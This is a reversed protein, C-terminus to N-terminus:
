QITFTIHTEGFLGADVRVQFYMDITKTCSDFTGYANDVYAAGYTANNYLYNETYDPFDLVFNSPDSDDLYVSTTSNPDSDWVNSIIIENPLAGATVNVNYVTYGEEDADWAGLFEDRVFPCFQYFDLSYVNDFTAVTSGEVSDLNLILNTGSVVTASDGYIKISGVNSGSPIFLDQIVYTDASVTSAPDVTVSVTRDANTADTVGVIIEFFDNDLDQVFYSGSTGNTFYSLSDGTYIDKETDECAFLALSLSFLILIQKKM